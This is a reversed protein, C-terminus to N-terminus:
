DLIDKCYVETSDLNSYLEQGNGYEDKQYSFILISGGLLEPHFWNENGHPGESNMRKTSIKESNYLKLNLIRNLEKPCTKYHLWIACDIKPVIQDQFHKIKVCDYAPKGFLASYIEDGTRPKFIGTVKKYSKSLFVYGTIIGLSLSILIFPMGLIIFYRKKKILGLVILSIFGIFTLISLIGYIIIEKMKRGEIAPLTSIETNKNKLPYLM